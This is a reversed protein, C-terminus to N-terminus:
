LIQWIGHIIAWPGLGFFTLYNGWSFKPNFCMMQFIEKLAKLFDYFKQFQILSVLTIATSCSMSSYQVHYMYM